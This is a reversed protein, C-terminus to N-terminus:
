FVEEFSINLSWLLGSESKQWTFEPEVITCYLPGFVDLSNEWVLLFLPTINGASEFMEDINKREADEIFPFAFAPVHKQYSKRGYIQGSRSVSKQTVTVHPIQIGPEIEPLQLYTGLYALGLKIYGDENNPNDILFRWFAYEKEAFNKLIIAQDWVLMQEFPPGNWSDWDNGQVKILADASLNHGALAAYSAKIKPQYVQEFITPRNAMAADIEAETLLTGLDSGDWAWFQVSEFQSDIHNGSSEHGISLTPFSSTKSDPAGDFSTDETQKVGDVIVFFRQGTQQDLRFAGFIILNSNIDDHSSGDDFLQSHLARVAGGDQWGINIIDTGANYNLRFVHTGDIYWVLCRHNGTTDFPFWPRAKIKFIFMGPMEFAHNPSVASRSGDVYPTDYALDELQPRMWYTYEDVTANPSAYLRFEIDDTLAVLSICTYHIEITQSDIWRYWRLTGVTPTGPSNPYNDFYIIQSFVVAAGTTNYILIYGKNDVVDGLRCIVNGAPTLTTFLGTEHQYIRGASAVSNTVKAFESGDYFLGSAVVTANITSWLTLDDSDELLNVTAQFIDKLLGGSDVLLYETRLDTFRLHRSLRPDKLNSAPYNANESSPTLVAGAIGNDYLLRM